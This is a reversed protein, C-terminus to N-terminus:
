PIKKHKLKFKHFQALSNFVIHHSLSAIEGIEDEKFAPSYTHIEKDM